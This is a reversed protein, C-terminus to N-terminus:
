SLEKEIVDAVLIEARLKFCDPLLFDGKDKMNNYAELINQCDINVLTNAGVDITEIWETTNRLTICPTSLLMAEKQMGGSDTFIVEANKQLVLIDSFSVPNILRINDPVEKEIEWEKLMKKSRPHIPFIVPKSITKMSKFITRFTNPNSTNEQRHITLLLYEKSHLDLKKLIKCKTLAKDKIMDLSSAMLDGVLYSKRTIGENSINSIANPTPALLINSTHDAVIRNQEEPMSLDGSRLGAEIHLLKLGMRRACIATALTSNTDGYCLVMAIDIKSLALHLRTMIESIQKAFTGSGVGLNVFPKPLNFEDFFFDSMNVDYHQGTHIVLHEVDRKKLEQSLPFLKIFQPRAGVVSVVSSM